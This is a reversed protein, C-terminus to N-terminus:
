QMVEAAIPAVVPAWKDLESNVFKSLDEPKGGIPVMSFNSLQAKGEASALFDNALKNLKFVVDTPLGKPGVLGFWGTASINIGSEILTPVDPLLPSRQKGLVALARVKGTAVHPLYPPLLDFSTNVVGSLLDAMAAAGGKYAVHLMSIDATRQMLLASLHGMSGVGSSSYSVKGPNAKLYTMLENMNKVPVSPHVALVLPVDALLIIPTFDTAPNFNTSRYLLKNLSLPGTSSFLLTNGDPTASAVSAAGLSGNAGARNEVIFSQGLSDSFKKALLRAVADTAGGAPYPVVLKVPRNPWSSQALAGANVMLGATLVMGMALLKAMLRKISKTLSM